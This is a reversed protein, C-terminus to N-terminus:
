TLLGEIVSSKCNLPTQGIFVFYFYFYIAAAKWSVNNLVQTVAPIELGGLIQRPLAMCYQLNLGYRSAAEGMQKLWKEGLFLDTQLQEISDMQTM